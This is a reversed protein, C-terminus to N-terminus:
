KVSLRQYVGLLEEPLYSLAKEVFEQPIGYMESSIGGVICAVTDTDGNIYVAERISGEFDTSNNLAYLVQNITPTVKETYPNRPDYGEVRYGYNRALENIDDLSFDPNNRAGYTIRSIFEAGKLSDEHNHTIDTAQLTLSKLEDMSKAYLGVSGIRMASGNGLSNYPQPDVSYIWNRFRLGWSTSYRRGYSQFAEIVEGRLDQKGLTDKNNDLVEALALTLITDDTVEGEKQFLEFNDDARVSDFEYVSGVIDGIVNGIIM